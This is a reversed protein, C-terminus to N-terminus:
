LLIRHHDGGPNISSPFTCVVASPADFTTFTGDSARLFGHGLSNADNYYGTIAGAPNFSSPHTGNIAGPVDFTVFSNVRGPLDAYTLAERGAEAKSATALALNAQQAMLSL